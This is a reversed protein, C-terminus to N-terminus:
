PSWRSAKCVSLGPSLENRGRAGGPPRGMPKRVLHRTRPEPPQRRTTPSRSTTIRRETRKGFGSPSIQPGRRYFDAEPPDVVSGQSGHLEWGRPDLQRRFWEHVADTAADVTWHTQYMASKLVHDFGWGQGENYGVRDVFRSGPLSLRGEERAAVERWSIGAAEPEDIAMGHAECPVSPPATHHVCITCPARISFTRPIPGRARTRCPGAHNRHSPLGEIRRSAGTISPPGMWSAM